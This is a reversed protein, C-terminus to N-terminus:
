LDIYGCMCAFLVSGSCMREDNVITVNARDPTGLKVDRCQRDMAQPAELQLSFIEDPEFIIDSVIPINFSATTTGPTFTVM